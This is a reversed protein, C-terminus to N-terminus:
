PTITTKWLDNLDGLLSYADYGGGGFVWLTNNSNNLWAAMFYRAGPSNSTSGTGQTGYTGYANIVTAGSLYRWQGATPDFQWVDNLYGRNGSGDLGQGGVMLFKGASDRATAAGARAGPANSAAYTALTGYSGAQAITNNGGVWTWQNTSPVFKWLDALFGNQQNTDYGSGGFLWINGSTDIWGVAGQRAGPLNTSAATGLTGYTPPTNATTSGPAVTGNTPITTGTHPYYTWLGTSVSYSWIDDLLGNDGLSDYGGGGFLWFNGKTDTWSTAGQRAGPIVDAAVIGTGTAYVGKANATNAGGRWVWVGGTYEWLDNLDGLTGNADYGNGGFLWLNGASDVWTVAGSRAGPNTPTTSDTPGATGTGLTGYVGAHNVTSFGSVWTWTTGSYKWLDNLNGATGSVDFGIGGFLWLTGSADIWTAAGDRGGPVLLAPSGTTTYVGSRGAQDSGGVWTWTLSGAPTVITEGSPSSSKHHCGALLLLSAAGAVLTRRSLATKM